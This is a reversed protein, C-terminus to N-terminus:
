IEGIDFFIEINTCISIAHNVFSTVPVFFKLIRAAVPSSKGKKFHATWCNAESPSTNRSFIQVNVVWAMKCAFM